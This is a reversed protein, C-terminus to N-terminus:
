MGEVNIRNSRQEDDGVIVEVSEVHWVITSSDLASYGDAASSREPSSFPESSTLSSVNRFIIMEVIM